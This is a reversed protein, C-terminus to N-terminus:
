KYVRGAFPNILTALVSIITISTVALLGKFSRKNFYSSIYFMPNKINSFFTAIVETLLFVIFLIPALVFGAHTNVWLVFFLPILLMNKYSIRKLWVLFLTAFIVSLVQPRLGLFLVNWSFYTSLLFFVVLLPKPIKVYKYLLYAFATMLTSYVLSTGIFGWSKYTLFLLADFLFSSYAWKYDALYYTFNNSICPNGKFLLEGCKYHWGFDPDVQPLFFIVFVSLLFLNQLTFFFKFTRIISETTKM